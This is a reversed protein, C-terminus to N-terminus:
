EVRGLRHHRGPQAIAGAQREGAVDCAEFQKVGLGIKHKGADVDV